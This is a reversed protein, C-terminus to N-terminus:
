NFSLSLNRIVLFETPCWPVLLFEVNVLQFETNVLLFDTNVLLFELLAGFGFLQGTRSHKTPLNIIEEVSSLLEINVLQFEIPGFYVMLFETNVLLFETHAALALCVARDWRTPLNNNRRWFESKYVCSHRSYCDDCSIVIFAHCSM